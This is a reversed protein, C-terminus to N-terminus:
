NRLEYWRAIGNISYARYTAGNPVIAHVMFGGNGDHKPNMILVNNVYFENTSFNGYNICVALPYGTSNTYTGNNTRDVNIVYNVWKSSTPMGPVLTYGGVTQTSGDPWTMTTGSLTIAM